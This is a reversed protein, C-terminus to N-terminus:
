TRMVEEAFLSLDLNVAGKSKLFTNSTVKNKGAAYAGYLTLAVAAVDKRPRAM